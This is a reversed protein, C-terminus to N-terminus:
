RTSFNLLKRISNKSQGDKGLYKKFVPDNLFLNEVVDNIDKQSKFSERIAGLEGKDLWIGGCKFCEDIFIRSKAVYEHRDMEMKCKPCHVKRHSDNDAARGYSLIRTLEKGSGETKEDLRQLERLDFWIGHCGDMCEDIETEGIKVAKMRKDCLPCQM